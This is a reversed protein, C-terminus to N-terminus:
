KKEKNNETRYDSGTFEVINDGCMEHIRSVCTQGIHRSLEMLPSNCTIVLSIKKNYLRDIIMFYIRNLFDDKSFTVKGVDDLLLLKVNTHRNVVDSETDDSDDSFSARIQDILETETIINVPNRHPSFENGWLKYNLMFNHLYERVVAIALHTKGTGPNKSWFLISQGNTTNFKLAHKYAKLNKEKIFNDFSLSHLREGCLSSLWMDAAKIRCDNCLGHNLKYDYPTPNHREITDQYTHVGDKNSYGGVFAKAGICVFEIKDESM